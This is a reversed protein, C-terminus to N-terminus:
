EVLWKHFSHRADCIRWLLKTYARQVAYNNVHTPGEIWDAGGDLLEMGAYTLSTFLGRGYHEPHIAAISYHGVRTGLSQEEASPRKWVSYGAIRGGIEAVLIWDAYGECSSRIWEKYVRAAQQNSIREDAHFRGFHQRFSAEAVSVLEEPDDEGALRITGGELEPPRPVASLPYRRSDYVYDLLTDTLLFGKKELAHITMIDDTYTKCLLFEIGRATAWDVVHDLLLTAIEETRSSESEAAIYKLAGMRNGLVRTDWPLDAYAVLGVLEGGGAATFIKGQGDELLLALENLWFSDVDCGAENLLYRYPKHRSREMLPKVRDIQEVPLESVDITSM